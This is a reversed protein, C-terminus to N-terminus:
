PVDICSMPTYTRHLVWLALSDRELPAVPWGPALGVLEATGLARKPEGNASLSLQSFSRLIPAGPLLRAQTRTFDPACCCTSVAVMSAYIVSFLMYVIGFPLLLLTVVVHVPWAWLAM